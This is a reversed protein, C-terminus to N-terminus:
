QRVEASRQKWAEGAVRADNAREIAPAPQWGAIQANAAEITEAPLRAILLDRRRAAESDGSRAALAYWRYAAAHDKPVGLGSEYLVGLNYQSDALGHSAAKGFLAAATAYDPAGGAGGVSMVALNHMAKVNGQEAAQRYLAKARERDARVGMGGEYLTALRYQAVGEGQAAAREYWQAAEAFSQKVGRGEALRTAVELQASADGQAAALRLSLPGTAAPPLTLQRSSPPPAAPAASTAPAAPAPGAAIAATAVPSVEPTVPYDHAAMAGTRQSLSAMHAQERVAMVREVTPQLGLVVAMGPGAFRAPAADLSAEQMDGGTPVGSPPDSTRKPPV